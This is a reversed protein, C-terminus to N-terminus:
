YDRHAYQIAQMEMANFANQIEAEVSVGPFEAYITVNQNLDNSNAISTTTAAALSSGMAYQSARASMDIAQSAQRVLDVAALINSTDAQNLVLEKQHLIALRGSDGWEGTYGGTDFSRSQWAILAAKIRKKEEEDLVSFNNSEYELIRQADKSTIKGDKDIDFVSYGNQDKLGTLNLKTLDNELRGSLRLVQTSLSSGFTLGSISNAARDAEDRIEKLNEIISDFVSKSDPIDFNIKIPDKGIANKTADYANEAAKYAAKYADTIPNTWNDKLNKKYDGSPKQSAFGNMEKTVAALKTGVVQAMEQNGVKMSSFAKVAANWNSLPSGDGTTIGKIWGGFVDFVGGLKDKFDQPNITGVYAGMANAFAVHGAGKEEGLWNTFKNFASETPTVFHTSAYKGAAIIPTDLAEINDRLTKLYGSNGESGAVANVMDHIANGMGGVGISAKNASNMAEVFTNALLTASNAGGLLAPQLGRNKDSGGLENVLHEVADSFAGNSGFLAAASAGSAEMADLYYAADRGSDGGSFSAIIRGAEHSANDALEKLKVSSEEKYTEFQETKMNLFDALREDGELSTMQESWTEGLAIYMNDINKQLTAYLVDIQAILGNQDMEIAAIVSSAHEGMSTYSPLVKGLITQEFDTVFDTNRMQFAENTSTINQIADFYGLYDQEYLDKNNQLIQENQSTIFAVRQEFNDVIMQRTREYEERSNFDQEAINRLADEMEAITALYDSGLDKLRNDNLEQLAYLKDEYDSAATNSSEENATYVYSYNGEADRSLRVQTKANQADELAIEAVRLDYKKQLYELDYESLKKGSNQLDYIEKQFDRLKKQASLSDTTDIQKSLDRSIKNLEYIQKYEPIYQEELTRRQDYAQQLAEISGYMDSIAYDFSDILEEISASFQDKVMQAMETIADRWQSELNRRDNDLEKIKEKIEDYAEQAADRAWQALSSDNMKAEQESLEQDLKQREKGNKYNDIEAALSRIQDQQVAIQTKWAEQLIGRTLGSMRQGLADAIDFYIQIEGKFDEFRDLLEQHEENIKDLAAIYARMERNQENINESLKGIIESIASTMKESLISGVDSGELQKVVANFEEVWNEGSVVKSMLAEIGSGGIGAEAFAQEVFQRQVEIDQNNLAMRAAASQAIQDVKEFSDIFSDLREDMYDWYQRLSENVEVTFTVTYELQSLKNDFEQRTIDALNKLADEKDDIDQEVKSM